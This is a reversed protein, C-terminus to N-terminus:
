FLIGRKAKDRKSKAARKTANMLLSFRASRYVSPCSLCPTIIKVFIHHDGNHFNCLLSISRHKKLCIYQCNIARTSFNPFSRFIARFCIQESVSAKIARRLILVVLHSIMLTEVLLNRESPYEEVVKFIIQSSSSILVPFM